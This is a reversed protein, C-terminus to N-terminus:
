GKQIKDTSPSVVYSQTTGGDARDRIKASNQLAAGAGDSWGEMMNGAMPITLRNEEFMYEWWKRMKLVQSWTRGRLFYLKLHPRTKRTMQLAGPRTEAVMLEQCKQQLLSEAWQDGRKWETREAALIIINTTDSFKEKSGRRERKEKNDASPFVWKRYKGWVKQKSSNWDKSFGCSYCFSCQIKLM